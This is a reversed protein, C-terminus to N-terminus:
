SILRINCKTALVSSNFILSTDLVSINNASVLSQNLIISSEERTKKRATLAAINSAEENELEDELTGLQEKHQRITDDNLGEDEELSM